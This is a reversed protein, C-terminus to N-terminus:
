FFTRRLKLFLSERGEYSGFFGTNHDIDSYATGGVTVATAENIEYSLSARLGLDSYDLDWVAFSEFALRDNMFSRRLRLSMFHGDNNQVLKTGREIRDQFYQVAWFWEDVTGEVGAAALLEWRGDAGNTSSGRALLGGLVSPDLTFMRNPAFAIETRLVIKGGFTAAATGGLWLTRPRTKQPLPVTELVFIDETVTMVNLGASWQDHKTALELGGGWDAISGNGPEHLGDFRGLGHYSDDCYSGTQPLYSVPSFPAFTATLSTSESFSAQGKALWNPLKNQVDLRAFRCYDRGNFRDLLIFGETNGQTIIQRGVSFNFRSYDGNLTLEEVLRYVACQTVGKPHTSYSGGCPSLTAKATLNDNLAWEGRAILRLYSPGLQSDGVQYETAAEAELSKYRLTPAAWAAGVAFAALGLLLPWVRGAGGRRCQRM